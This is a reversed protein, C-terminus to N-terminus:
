TNRCESKSLSSIRRRWFWWDEQNTMREFVDCAIAIVYLADERFPMRGRQTFEVGIQGANRFLVVLDCPFRVSYKLRPSACRAHLRCDCVSSSCFGVKRCDQPRPRNSRPSVGPCRYPCRHTSLIPQALGADELRKKSVSADMLEVARRM